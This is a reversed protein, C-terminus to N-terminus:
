VPLGDICTQAIPSWPRWPCLLAFAFQALVMFAIGLMVGWILCRFPSM